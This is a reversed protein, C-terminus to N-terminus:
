AGCSGESLETSVERGARRRCRAVRAYDNGAAHEKEV